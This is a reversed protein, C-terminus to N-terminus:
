CPCDVMVGTARRYPHGLPMICVSQTGFSLFAKQPPSFSPFFFYKHGSSSLIKYHHQIRDLPLASCAVERGDGWKMATEGESM